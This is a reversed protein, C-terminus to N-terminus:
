NWTDVRATDQRTPVQNGCKSSTRYTSVVFEYPSYLLYAKLKASNHSEQPVPVSERVKDEGHRREIPM